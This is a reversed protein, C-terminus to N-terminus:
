QWFEPHAALFLDIEEPPIGMDKLAKFQENSLRPSQPFRQNYNFVRETLGKYFDNERELRSYEPTDIGLAKLARAEESPLANFKNTVAGDYTFRSNSQKSPMRNMFREIDGQYKDLDKQLILRIEEDTKGRSRLFNITDWLRKNKDGVVGANYFPDTSKISAKTPKRKAERSMKEIVMGASGPNEMWAKNIDYFADTYDGYSMGTRDIGPVQKLETDMFQRSHDYTNRRGGMSPVSESPLIGTSLDQVETMTIPASQAAEAELDQLAKRYDSDMLADKFIPGQEETLKTERLGNEINAKDTVAERWKPNTNENIYRLRESAPWTDFGEPKPEIYFKQGTRIANAESMRTTSATIFASLAEKAKPSMRDRLSLARQYATKREGATNASHALNMQKICEEFEKKDRGTLGADQIISKPTTHKIDTSLNIFGGKPNPVLSNVKRTIKGAFPLLGLLAMIAITDDDYKRLDLRDEVFPVAGAFPTMEGIDGFVNALSLGDEVTRPAVFSAVDKPTPVADRIFKTGNPYIRSSKRKRAM